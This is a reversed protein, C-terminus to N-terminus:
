GSVAVLKIKYERRLPVLQEYHGYTQQEDQTNPSDFRFDINIKKSITSWNMIIKNSVKELM